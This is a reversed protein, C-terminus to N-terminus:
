NTGVLPDTAITLPNKNMTFNIFADVKNKFYIIELLLYNIFTTTSHNSVMNRSQLDRIRNKTVPQSDQRVKEYSNAREVFITSFYRLCNVAAEKM